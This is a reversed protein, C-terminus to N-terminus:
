ARQSKAKKQKAAERLPHDRPIDIMPFQGSPLAKRIESEFVAWAYEGWFDDAWLFGGKQLYTRLGRAEQGIGPLRDVPVPAVQRERRRRGVRGGDGARPLQAWAFKRM